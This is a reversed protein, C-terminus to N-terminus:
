TLTLFREVIIAGVGLLLPISLATYLRLRRRDGPVFRLRRLERAILVGLLVPLYVVGAPTWATMGISLPAPRPRPPDPQAPPSRLAFVAADRDAFVVRLDPSRSLAERLRASYRAPLGSSLELYAEQGRTTVFFGAPGQDRLKSTISRVDAAPDRSTAVVPYGLREFGRFSWPMVPFGSATTDEATLWVVDIAGQPRQRLMVEFAQVEGPRIREFRENGFRVLVFGFVLALALAAAALVPRSQRVRSRRPRPRPVPASDPRPFFVYAVLVCAGPLMFLYTRLAIEGGYSQLGFSTFPAILLIIAVRDDMGVARRRLLGLLALVAILVALVIRTTQVTALQPSGESIRGGVSSSLNAGLRGVGGFVDELHGAWYARTMFNVWAAFIVAGLLPLGRLTCRGTMVLGTTAVIMLFPTLQHASTAVLFVAVLLLFLISRERAGVQRPPLEGPELSRFAWDYTRWFRGTRADKASRRRGPGRTAGGAPRFWNLLIAIWCLYLLYGFAQPSLYDQGVWNAVPFLWAAFWKARWNARLTRLILLLPGLYLLNTIVPAWHLVPELDHQGIATTVFGVLAFFGPWNFRADLLTDVGHTRTIYEILGAHQWATPFRAVPEMVQALAHLSIVTAVLYVTLLARHPRNLGLTILFGATLVAVGLLTPVPLVSIVGYGNMADLRVGPLPLWFLALGAVLTLCGAVGSVSLGGIARGAASPWAMVWRTGRRTGTRHSAIPHSTIPSERPRAGRGRRDRDHAAARFLAPLVVVAIAAHVALVGIGTGLLISGTPVTLVVALTGLFRAAQIVAIRGTQSRVRLVGLYLEIVAKPLTAVALLRLLPTGEDAYGPGFAGLAYPCCLATVASAPVLLM